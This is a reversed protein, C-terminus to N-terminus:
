ARHGGIQENRKVSMADEELNMLKLVSNKGYKKKIEILTKQLNKEKKLEVEEKEMTEKLSTFDSFLNIQSFEQKKLAETETILDCATMNIRRILLKKDVIRDYLEILAQTILRISNVRRALHTTGHAHKPISRGYFDVKVEQKVHQKLYPDKLNDIDYGITLVLQKTVLGKELLDLALQEAMEQVIIKAKDYTYACHLVQGSGLSTASPRYSKIEQMTCNEYGWAHDILLEANVGFLAYLLEENYFDKPGGLSCRAIDGMTYLGNDELKKAYGRGVRWFDTLPQHNWLRTRYTLENLEAICVGNKDPAAHKALIDMAVKCLYLNSGIGATATIGTSDYVDKLIVSTFERATMNACRLYPTLDIFVEDISYVHIDEPAVYKLYIQYIDTSVQMYRAMRPPAILCTLELSEDELLEPRYCSKGTLKGKPSQIRRLTNIEKMKQNVEFLRARGSFGFAKLAPTAALCITKETREADAVVLCTTMPDLGRDICEVSAYFSKLDIALYVSNM